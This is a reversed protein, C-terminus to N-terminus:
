RELEMLLYTEELYGKPWDEAFVVQRDELFWVNQDKLSTQYNLKSSYDYKGVESFWLNKGNIADVYVAVDIDHIYDLENQEHKDLPALGISTLDFRGDQDLKVTKRGEDVDLSYDGLFEGFQHNVTPDNKLEHATYRTDCAGMLVKWFPMGGVSTLHIYRPEDEVSRNPIDLGCQPGSLTEDTRAFEVALEVADKRSIIPDPVPDSSWGDFGIIVSGGDFWFRMSGYGDHEIKRPFPWSEVMALIKDEYNEYNARVYDVSIQGSEVEPLLKVLDASPGLNRVRDLSSMNLEDLHTGRFLYYEYIYQTSRPGKGYPDYVTWGDFGMEDMFRTIVETHDASSLPSFYRVYHIIGAYSQRLQPPNPDHITNVTTFLADDTFYYFKYIDGLFDFDETVEVFSSDPDRINQVATYDMTEGLIAVFKKVLEDIEAKTMPMLYGTRDPDMMITIRYPDGKFVSISEVPVRREPPPVPIKEPERIEVESVPVLVHPRIEAVQTEHAAADSFSPADAARLPREVLELGLRVVTQERVCAPGGAWVALVLDASCEVEDPAVGARLQAAPTEAYASLALLALAATAALAGLKALSKLSESGIRKSIVIAFCHRYYRFKNM